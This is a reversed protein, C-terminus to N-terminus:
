QAFARRGAQELALWPAPLRAASARRAPWWRPDLGHAHVRTLAAEIPHSVRFQCCGADKHSWAAAVRAIEDQVVVALGDIDLEDTARVARKVWSIQHDKVGHGIGAAELVVVDVGQSDSVLRVGGDHSRLDTLAGPMKGGLVM